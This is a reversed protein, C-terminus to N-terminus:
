QWRISATRYQPQLGGGRTERKEIRARKDDKDQEEMESYIHLLEEKRRRTLHDLVM